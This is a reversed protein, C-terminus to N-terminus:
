EGEAIERVFDYSLELVEAIEIWDFGRKELKKIKQKLTM